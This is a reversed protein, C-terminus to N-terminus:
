EDAWSGPRGGGVSAADSMPRRAGLFAFAKGLLVSVGHRGDHMSALVRWFAVQRVSHILGTRDGVTRVEVHRLPGENYIRGVVLVRKDAPPRNAPCPQRLEGQLIASCDICYAGEWQDIMNHSDHVWDRM